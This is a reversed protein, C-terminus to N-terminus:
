NIFLKASTCFLTPIAKLNEPLKKHRYNLNMVHSKTRSKPNYLLPRLCKPLAKITM